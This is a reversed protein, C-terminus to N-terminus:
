KPFIPLIPEGTLFINGTHSNSGGTPTYPKGVIGLRALPSSEHFAYRSKQDCGDNWNSESSRRECVFSLHKANDVISTRLDDELGGVGAINVHILEMGPAHERALMRIDGAREPVM